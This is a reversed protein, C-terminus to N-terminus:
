LGGPRIVGKYSALSRELKTGDGRAVLGGVRERLRRLMRAGPTFGARSVRYGLYEFSGTTPRPEAHPHKLRLRRESWLWDAIADRAQELALRSDGGLTLDDM